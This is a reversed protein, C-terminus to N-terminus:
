GGEEVREFRIGRVRGADITFGSAAAGADDRPEFTLVEGNLTFEGEVTPQLSIPDGRGRQLTLRDGDAEILYDADLEVSHYRGAFAAATAPTLVAPEVEDAAAEVAGAAVGGVGVATEEPELFDALFLDAVRFSLATPDASSVNCLAAVSFRQEPFRVMEARFGVFAGGHSVVPLGRHEGHVLGLAYDLTDGNTLVGRELLAAVFGPGGVEPEFFNGDWKGLDEVTTFVGGDGVMDLTTMSIRFGDDAPAYGSARDAVIETHDDHFHTDAMGLPEFIEEEAYRRLSRGTAREIIQSLLFYGSNSYLHESGPEFNTNRQRAVLALAEDETYWDDDRLGALEALALYDRIGSTHHLLMRITIPTGYDPMEPLWTRIDDDLSLAGERAALVVAAATFQKSLSGTRFVSRGDIAIGYDLNAMGFGRAYALSGDHVVGLACGPSDTRDYEAFVEDVADRVDVVSAVRQAALRGHSGPAGGPALAVLLAVGVSGVSPVIRARM